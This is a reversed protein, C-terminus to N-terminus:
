AGVPGLAHLQLDIGGDTRVPLFGGSLARAQQASLATAGHRSLEQRIKAVQDRVLSPVRSAGPAAVARPATATPAATATGAAALAPVALLAGFLLTTLRCPVPVEQTQVSWVSIRSTMTPTRWSAPRTAQNPTM